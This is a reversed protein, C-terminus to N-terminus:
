RSIFAAAHNEAIFNLSDANQLMRRGIKPLLDTFEVKWNEITDLLM